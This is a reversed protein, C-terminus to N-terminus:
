MVDCNKLFFSKKVEIKKKIAWEQRILFYDQKRQLGPFLKTLAIRTNKVMLFSLCFWLKELGNSGLQIRRAIFIRWLFVFLKLLRKCERDKRRKRRWFVRPVAQTSTGVKVGLTICCSIPNIVLTGARDL